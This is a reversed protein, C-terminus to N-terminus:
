DRVAYNMGTEVRVTAAIIEGEGRELKLVARHRAVTGQLLLRTPRIETGDRRRLRKVRYRNLTTFQEATDRDLSWSLGNAM